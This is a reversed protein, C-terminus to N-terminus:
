NSGKAVITALLDGTRVIQGVTVKYSVVGAAPSALTNQMKMAELVLLADGIKVETGEAVSFGLINGAIPATLRGSHEIPPPPPQSLVKARFEHTEALYVRMRQRIGDPTQAVLEGHEYRLQLPVRQGDATAVVVGTPAEEVKLDRAVGDVILTNPDNPDIQVDFRSGNELEVVYHLLTSTM